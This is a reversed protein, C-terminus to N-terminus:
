LHITDLVEDSIKCDTEVAHFVGDAVVAPAVSTAAQTTMLRPLDMDALISNSSMRHWISLPGFKGTGNKREVRRALNGFLELTLTSKPASAFNTLDAKCLEPVHQFKVESLMIFVSRCFQEQPWRLSTVFAVCRPSTLATAELKVLAEWMRECRRLCAQVVDRDPHVLGLLVLPPLETYTLNTLSSAGVVGVVLRWLAMSAKSNESAQIQSMPKDGLGISKAFDVSTFCCLLGHLTKAHSGTCLDYHLDRGGRRTKIMDMETYFSAIMPRSLQCAGAFFRRSLSRAMVGAVVHMSHLALKKKEAVEKRAAARGVRTASADGDGLAETLEDAEVEAESEAELADDADDERELSVSAEAFAGDYCALPSKYFSTYWKRKWVLYTVLMLTGLM